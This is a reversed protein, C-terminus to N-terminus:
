PEQKLKKRGTVVANPHRELFEALDAIAHSANGLEELAQRLESRFSSDSGLLASLGLVGGRLDALTKQTDDLTKTLNDALPDVRGEIRKVLTGAKDLTQRLSALSNTLDPIAVLRHAAAFLNTAGANLEAMNLQSLSTDLRTL